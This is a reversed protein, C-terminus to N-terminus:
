LALLVRLLLVAVCALWGGCHLLAKAGEGYTQVSYSRHGELLWRALYGVLVVSPVGIRLANLLLIGQAYQTQYLAVFATLNNYFHFLVGWWIGGTVARCLGLALGGAFAVLCGAVTGHLLAFVVAQGMISFWFGYPALYGQLLGRFLLEEGMAPLLTLMLATALLLAPQQPLLELGGEQHTLRATFDGLSSGTVILLWFVLFLELGCDAGSLGLGLSRVGKLPHVLWLVLVALAMAALSIGGQVLLYEPRNYWLPYVGNVACVLLRGLVLYLIAGLGCFAAALQVPPHIGSKARNNVKNSQEQVLNRRHIKQNVLAFIGGNLAPGQCGAALGVTGPKTPPQVEDPKRTQRGISWM